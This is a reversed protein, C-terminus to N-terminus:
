TTAKIIVTMPSVSRMGSETMPNVNKAAPVLMGSATLLTITVLWPWPDIPILLKIPDLVNSIRSHKPRGQNMLLAKKGVVGPLWKMGSCDLEIAYEAVEKNDVRHARYKAKWRFLNLSSQFIPSTQVPIYANKKTNALMTSNFTKKGM